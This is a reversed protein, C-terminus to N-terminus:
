QSYYNIYLGKQAESPLMLRWKLLGRGSVPKYRSVVSVPSTCQTTHRNVEWSKCTESVGLPIALRLLGPQSTVYQSPKGVRLHDGMGTGVVGLMSYTQQHLLAASTSCWTSVNNHRISHVFHLRHRDANVSTLLHTQPVAESHFHPQVSQPGTQPLSPSGLFTLRTRIEGVYPNLAAKALNNQRRTIVVTISNRCSTTVTCSRLRLYLGVAMDFLMNFRRSNVLNPKIPKNQQCECVRDVLRLSVSRWTTMGTQVRCSYRYKCWVFFGWATRFQVARTVVSVLFNSWMLGTRCSSWQSGTRVRMM